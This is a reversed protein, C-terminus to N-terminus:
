STPLVTERRKGACAEMQSDANIFNAGLFGEM